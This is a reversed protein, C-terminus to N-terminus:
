MRALFHSHLLSWRHVRKPGLCAWLVFCVRLLTKELIHRNIRKSGWPIRHIKHLKLCSIQLTNTYWILISWTQKCQPISPISFNDNFIPRLVPFTQHGLDVWSPHPFPFPLSWICHIQRNFDRNTFICRFVFRRKTFTLSFPNSIVCNCTAKRPCVGIIFPAPLPWWLANFFQLSLFLLPSLSIILILYRQPIPPTHKKLPSTGTVGSLLQIHCQSNQM